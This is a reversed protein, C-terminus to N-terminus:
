NRLHLVVHQLQSRLVQHDPSLAPALAPVVLDLDNLGALDVFCSGDAFDGEVSAAVHLALRTKGVGGPGSLTVIPVDDRQLLLARITEMERQRGVLPTRVFPLRASIAIGQTPPSMIPAGRSTRDGNVQDVVM